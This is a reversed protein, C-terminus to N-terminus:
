QNSQLFIFSGIIGIIFIVPTIIISIIFFTVHLTEFLYKFNEFTIALGYFLNHLLSFILPTIASIAVLILFFKLKSKEKKAIFILFIGLIFFLFSLIAVLPFFRRKVSASFPIFFYLVLFLFIITLSYLTLNLSLKNKTDSEHESLILM